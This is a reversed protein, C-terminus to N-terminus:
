AARELADTPVHRTGGGWFQVVVRGPENVYWGIVIGQADPAIGELGRRLRVFDGRAFPQSNGLEHDTRVWTM